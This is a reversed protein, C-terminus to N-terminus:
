LRVPEGLPAFKVPRTKCESCGWFYDGAQFEDMETQCWLRTRIYHCASCEITVAWVAQNPCPVLGGFWKRPYLMDCPVGFEGLVSSETDPRLETATDM